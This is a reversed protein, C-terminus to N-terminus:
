WKSMHHAGRSVPLASVPFHWLPLLGGAKATCEAGRGGGAGGEGPAAARGRDGWGAQNRASLVESACVSPLTPPPAGAAEGSVAEM